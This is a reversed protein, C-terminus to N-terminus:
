RNVFPFGFATLLAKGEEDTKATTVFTIDMGRTRDVDEYSIEPFITQESVGMSYNGHGDFSNDPMGRFDRIRPIATAVLRDFFEYMRDGRLTVKAGIAQGKRLRFTAISKRARCIMPQQGTITRLDAVAADILKSDTAAEGVGMNVVIKELKPVNNINAINLEKELQPVIENKYKEKLRPAM